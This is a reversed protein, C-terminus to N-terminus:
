LSVEEQILYLRDRQTVCGKKILLRLADVVQFRNISLASEIETLRAGQTQHLYGFVDKELSTANDLKIPSQSNPKPLQTTTAVSKTVSPMSSHNTKNTINAVANTALNNAQSSSTEGWVTTHLNEYFSRLEARFLALEQFLVRVETIRRDHVQQLMAHLQQARDHRLLELETLYDQVASQLNAVWVALEDMQQAHNKIREQQHAQLKEQTEIQLAYIEFQLQQRFSVVSTTLNAHFEALDQFLQQAMLFRDTANTSLIETTQARLSQVYDHLQEAVQETQIQRHTSANALFEQTELQLELQFLRLDERMQAAKANRQQRFADITEQVQQHRQALEHQRQQRQEQWSDKLSIM